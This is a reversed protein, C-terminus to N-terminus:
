RKEMVRAPIGVVTSNDPVDELVVANAGIKVNNGIKIGGLLKAGVGIYVNDGLIPAGKKGMGREGLITGPGVSLNKGAKVDPHFRILGIHGIYLGPGIETSPRIAVGLCTESFKFIIFGILRLFIKLIPINLVFLARSLRYLVTVWIGQEFINYFIDKFSTWKWRGLDASLYRFQNWFKIIM